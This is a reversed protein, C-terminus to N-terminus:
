SMSRGFAPDVLHLTPTQEAFQLGQIHHLGAIVRKKLLTQKANDLHGHVISLYDRGYPFGLNAM